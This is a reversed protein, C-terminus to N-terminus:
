QKKRERLGSEATVARLTAVFRSRRLFVQTVFSQDAIGEAMVLGAVCSASDILCSTDRSGASAGTSVRSIRVNAATTTSPAIMVTRSAVMTLTARGVSPRSNPVETAVM